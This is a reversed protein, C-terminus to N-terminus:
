DKPVHIDKAELSEAQNAITLYGVLKQNADILIIYPGKYKYSAGSEFFSYLFNNEIHEKSDLQFKKLFGHLSGYKHTLETSTESWSFTELEGTEIMTDVIGYMLNM